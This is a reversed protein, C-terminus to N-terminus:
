VEKIRVLNKIITMQSAKSREAQSRMLSPAAFLGVTVTSAMAGASVGTRCLVGSIAAGIVVVSVVGLKVIQAGGSM